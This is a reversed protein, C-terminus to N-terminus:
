QALYLFPNGILTVGSVIDRAPFGRCMTEEADQKAAFYAKGLYDGQLICKYLVDQGYVMGSRVNGIVAEGVGQGFVWSMGTNRTTGEVANREWNCTSCGHNVVFLAGTKIAAITESSLVTNGEMGQVNFTSHVQIYMIKYTHQAFLSQLSNLNADQCSLQDVKWKGLPPQGLVKAFVKAGNPWDSGTVALARNEIPQLGLYYSHTKRLFARLNPIDPNTDCESGRLNAVWIQLKPQRTYTDDFGVGKLDHFALDLAEYYLANPNPFDHMYFRHMPLNGVLVAGTIKKQQHLTRLEDRVNVPSWWDGQVLEIKVPFRTEVDQIYTQLEAQLEHYTDRRVLLAVQDKPAADHEQANLRLTTTLFLYAVTIGLCILTRGFLNKFIRTM